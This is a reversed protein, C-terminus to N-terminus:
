MIKYYIGADFYIKSSETCMGANIAAEIATKLEAASVTQSADHRRM